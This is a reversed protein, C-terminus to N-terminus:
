SHKQLLSAGVFGAVQYITYKANFRKNIQNTLNTYDISGRRDLSRRATNLIFSRVKEDANAVGRRNNRTM